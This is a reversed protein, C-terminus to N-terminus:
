DAAFKGFAFDLKDPWGSLLQVRPTLRPSWYHDVTSIAGRRGVGCRGFSKELDVLLILLAEECSSARELPDIREGPEFTLSEALVCRDLTPEDRDFATPKGFSVVLVLRLEFVRNMAHRHLGERTWRSSRRPRM